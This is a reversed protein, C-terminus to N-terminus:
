RRAAHGAALVARDCVREDPEGPDGGVGAIEAQGGADEDQGLVIWRQQGFLQGGEIQERTPPDDEADSDSPQFLLERARPTGKRCRPARASSYM